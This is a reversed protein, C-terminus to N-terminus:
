ELWSTPYPMIGSLYTLTSPFFTESLSQEQSIHSLPECFSNASNLTSYCSQSLCLVDVEARRSRQMNCPLQLGSLPCSMVCTVTVCFTTLVVQVLVRSEQAVGRPRTFRPCKWVEQPNIQRRSIYHSGESSNLYLVVTGYLLGSSSFSLKYTLATTCRGLM